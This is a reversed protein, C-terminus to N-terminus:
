HKVIEFRTFTLTPQSVTYPTVDITFMNARPNTSNATEYPHLFLTSSYETDAKVGSVVPIPTYLYTYGYKNTGITHDVLGFYLTDFDVDSKVTFKVTYRDGETIKTEFFGSLPFFHHWGYPENYYPTIILSNEASALSVSNELSDTTTISNQRSGEVFIKTAILSASVALIVIGTIFLLSHPRIKESRALPEVSSLYEEPPTKNPLFKAFLEHVSSVGLKRYLKSRHTDVTSYSINLKFAIEKPSIGELLMNLIEQERPTLDKQETQM